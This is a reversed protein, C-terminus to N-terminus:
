KNKEVEEAEDETLGYLEYIMNNIKAELETTDENNKKKDQIEYVLKKFKEDEEDSVDKIFVTEMYTKLARKVQGITVVSDNFYYNFLNSNFFATLYGLNNGTIIYITQIDMFYNNDLYFNSLRNNMEPYIIKEKDFEKYYPINDQTEFWKNTTKKRSGKEGTQEISKGFSVLYEKLSPYDEIELKKAPFISILYLNKYEI